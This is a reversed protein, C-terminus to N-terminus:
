HFLLSGSIERAETISWPEEAGALPVLQAVCGARYLGGSPYCLKKNGRRLLGLILRVFCEEEALAAMDVDPERACTPLSHPIIKRM